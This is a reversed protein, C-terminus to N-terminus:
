TNRNWIELLTKEVLVGHQWITSSYSYAPKKFDIIRARYETWTKFWLPTKSHRDLNAQSRMSQLQCVVMALTTVGYDSQWVSPHWQGETIKGDEERCERCEIVWGRKLPPHEAGFRQDREWEEWKDKDQQKLRYLWASDYHGRCELKDIWKTGCYPCFQWGHSGRGEWKQYCNLCQEISCGDDTYEVYRFYPIPM